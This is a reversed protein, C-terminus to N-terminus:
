NFIYIYGNLSLAILLWIVYPLILLKLGIKNQSFKVHILLLCLILFLIVLIGFGSLHWLFFVPNWLVNLVWQLSFLLLLTNKKSAYTQDLVKWMYVSFCVMIFTWAAGFMWGPPTWPAKNLEQYWENEAPSGGMFLAGLALAGFNLLLFLVLRM